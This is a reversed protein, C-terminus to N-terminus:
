VPQRQGEFWLRGPLTYLLYIAIGQLGLDPIDSLYSLAGHFLSAASWILDVAFTLLLGTRAWRRGLGLEWIAWATLGAAIAYVAVILEHLTATDISVLGSLYDSLVAPITTWSQYIGAATIWTTWAWLVWQARHVNQRPDVKV